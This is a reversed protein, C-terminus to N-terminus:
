KNKNLLKAKALVFRQLVVLASTLLEKKRAEDILGFRYRTFLNWIYSHQEDIRKNAFDLTIFDELQDM